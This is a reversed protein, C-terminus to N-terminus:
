QTHAKELQQSHPSNELQPSHAESTALRLSYPMCAEPAAASPSLLQARLSLQGAAHPIRGSWPDFMHGM